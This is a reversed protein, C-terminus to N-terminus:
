TKGKNATSVADVVAWSQTEGDALFGFVIIGFGYVGATIQFVQQWQLKLLGPQTTPDATTLTDTLYPAVFGPITGFTNSIGMLVGAFQPAIDLHNVMFGSQNMGTGVLSVCLLAIAAANKHPGAVYGVGVIAAAAIVHGGCQCVKRVTATRVGHSRAYDAIQGFVISSLFSCAYPLSSLAGLTSIDYHLVEKMYQPMCTLLNYFGWNSVMNGAIIAWLPGSTAMRRWPISQKAAAAAAPPHPAAQGNELQARRRGDAGANQVRPLLPEAEADGAQITAATAASGSPRAGAAVAAQQLARRRAGNATSVKASHDANIYDREAATIRADHDPDSTFLLMWVGFWLVGLAGCLYFVSPWGGMFNPKGDTGDLSCLYGSVPNSIVTGFQAGAYAFTSYKTREHM